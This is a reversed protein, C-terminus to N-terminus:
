QNVRRKETLGHAESRGALVDTWETVTADLPGALERRSSVGLKRYINRSHTRITEVGVHLHLAIEANSRGRQLLPFVEQERPTLLSGVLSQAAHGPLEQPTVRLGRFVLHIVNLLDRGQTDRGLYASAGFALFQACETVSANDAIMILRTDPYCGSLERVQAPGDLARADLIALDPRHGRLVVPIRSYEVDFAVIELNPDGTLLERLGGALLDGFRALVITIPENSPM